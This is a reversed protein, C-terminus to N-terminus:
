SSTRSVSPSDIGEYIAARLPELHEGYRTSLQVSDKYIPRRVQANSATQVKRRTKHFDLCADNWELGCHQLLKRVQAEPSDVLEEYGQDYVFGPLTERWYDMLDLYMRYYQGLETMDNAYPHGKGLNNKFISLCNDMPDRACHIVRANPLITRIVGIYLFNHPMKDTIFRADASFRRIKAVYQKGLDVFAAADLKLLAEPVLAPLDNNDTTVISEVLSRLDRLEGAGFVDPHSALIQEVLSTGSRPMGLIFIPTSDPDGSDVHASFFERSFLAKIKDFQARSESISFDYSDRKLRAAEILFEISKDYVKLDEYAKGLAFGLDITDGDSIGKKSFLSEMARLDDDHETFKKNKSLSHYAVVYDPNIELAKRFGELAREIDGHDSFAKGLEVYAKANRPNIEIAKHYAAVTQDLDGSMAYARGLALCTKEAAPNIRLSQSFNEIAQDPENLEFLIVGLSHFTDALGPNIRVAQKYAAVAERKRNLALLANGLNNHANAQGPNQEIAKEFWGISKENEGQLQLANGVNNLLMPHEPLIKLAKRYANYAEKLRGQHLLVNGLNNHAEVFNRNIKIAKKYAREANSLKGKNEFVIADEYYKEASRQQQM